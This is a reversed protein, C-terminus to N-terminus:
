SLFFDSRDLAGGEYLMEDAKGTALIRWDMASSRVPASHDSAPTCNTTLVNYV